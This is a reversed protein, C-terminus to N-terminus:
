MWSFCPKSTTERRSNNLFKIILKITNYMTKSLCILGKILKEVLLAVVFIALFIPSIILTSVSLAWEIDKNNERDSNM